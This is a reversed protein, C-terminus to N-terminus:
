KLDRDYTSYLRVGRRVVGSFTADRVLQRDTIRHFAALGIEPASQEYVKHTRTSGVFLCGVAALATMGCLSRQLWM